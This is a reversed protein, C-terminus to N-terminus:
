YALIIILLDYLYDWGGDMSCYRWRASASHFALMVSERVMNM